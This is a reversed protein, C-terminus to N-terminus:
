HIFSERGVLDRDYVKLYKCRATFLSFADFPLVILSTEMKTLSKRNPM